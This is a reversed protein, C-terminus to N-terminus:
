VIQDIILKAAELELSLIDVKSLKEEKIQLKILNFIQYQYIQQRHVGYIMM